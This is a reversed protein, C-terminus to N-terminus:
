GFREIADNAITVQQKTRSVELVVDELVPLLLESSDVRDIVLVEVSSEVVQRVTGVPEGAVSVVAWGPVEYYYFEDDKLRPLRAKDFVLRWGTRAAAEQRGSWEALTLLKSGKPGRKVGRITWEERVSGDASEAIVTDLESILSSSANHLWLRVAGRVGHPRGIVGIELETDKM